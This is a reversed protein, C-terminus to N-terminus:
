QKEQQVKAGELAAATQTLEPKQIALGALALIRYVLESEESEHLEFNNSNDTNYLAKEGVIEYGWTPKSPKRIYSIYVSDSNLSPYPYVKINPSGSSTSYRTYVPRKKSWVGLPSSGYKNLENLQIEEALQFGGDIGSYNIRIMQLRYMDTVGSMKLDGFDNALQVLKDYREFLSIKEELNTTIDSHGANNGPLRMSQNLDYFYQEFIEQQAQDAFLNFEQPTIYGRQEKNALALVKQYVDNISVM